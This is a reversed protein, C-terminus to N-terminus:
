IKKALKEVVKELARKPVRILRGCRMSPLRGDAVMARVLPVKIKLLKATEIMDLFEGFDDFRPPTVETHKDDPASPPADNTHPSAMCCDEQAARRGRPALFFARPFVPVPEYAKTGQGKEAPM